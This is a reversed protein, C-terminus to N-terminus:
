WGSQSPGPRAKGSTKKSSGLGRWLDPSILAIIVLAEIRGLVMGLALFARSLPDLLGFSVEPGLVTAYAPGTNTIAALAAILSREFSQGALGLGMTVTFVAFVYLMVFAWAIFAGRTTQGRLGTGSGHVAYPQALRDLENRGHRLLEVARILKIGGATTAAGGGIACLGLLVLGPNPLGSWSRAREWYASEFGTTTMFSITTFLGGWFASIADALGSRASAEITLVGLWHRLFLALTVLVVLVAMLKLEPDQLATSRAGIQSARAYILRTAALVMFAAAALEAGIDPSAAFGTASPSIGSTSLISMAHVIATVAGQGTMHLVLALLATLGCYVPLIARLARRIRADVPAVGTGIDIRGATGADAGSQTLVEFGGLRRPALIAYAATLTMLGGLWGVLGRWLHVPMPITDPAAYVTGGTTTFAAVMEFWAGGFGIQPTILHLPLAAFVPLLAWCAVLFVIEGFGPPLRRPGSLAVGLIAAAFGTAIAAYLFSRGARWEGEIVAAAAPLLMAAALVGLALAFLPPLAKRM